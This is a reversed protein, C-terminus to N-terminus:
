NSGDLAAPAPSDILMPPDKHSLGGALAGGFVLFLFLKIV